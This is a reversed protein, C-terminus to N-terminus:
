FPVNTAKKIAALLRQQLNDKLYWKNWRRIVICNLTRSIDSDRGRDRDKTQRHWSGDCELAVYIAPCWVDIFYTNGFAVVKEERRHDIGLSRLAM